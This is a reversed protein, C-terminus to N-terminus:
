KRMRRVLNKVGHKLLRKSVNLAKSHRTFPGAIISLLGSPRYDLQFETWTFKAQIKELMSEAKGPEPYAGVQVVYQTYPLLAPDDQLKKPWRLVTIQVPATGEKLMGLRKAAGRSLDLIRGKKYPGRDNIRVWVVKRNRMNRVRIITGIPLTPHAATIGHQNYIEGNATRKGHFKPGYWSAIGKLYPEIVHFDKPQTRPSNKVTGSGVARKRRKKKETEAARSPPQSLPEAEPSDATNETNETTFNSADLPAPSVSADSERLSRAGAQRRFLSVLNPASWHPTFVPPPPFDSPVDGAGKGGIPFVPRMDPSDLAAPSEQASPEPTPPAISEEEVSCGSGILILWSIFLLAPRGSAFCLLTPQNMRERTCGHNAPAVACLEVM